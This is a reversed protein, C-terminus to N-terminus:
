DCEGAGLMKSSLVYCRTPNGGINPIREKRTLRGDGGPVLWGQRKLAAEAAKVDFGKCVEKKFSEPLVLFERNGFTDSRIFGVRSVVRQDPNADFREFRSSGHAEFFAAVSELITRDERNGAGGFGDLWAKFCKAAAQDAEGKEWGTLGCCTTAIEGAVAVLGFRRAVRRVQGAATDPVNETVFDDIRQHLEKPLGSRLAVVAQLFVMGVAGHSATAARKLAEAFAAPTPQHHIDEFSGMGAGADAEIDALRIEQGANAQKGAKALLGSLSEEGASLFMLRWRAAQRAVGSRSSRTKGQGNALLYAAEGAERPDVQSLEDLILLGDNHIAALGELGNATARWLRPYSNPSGWVSAAVALGTSKGTSSGGRFHFGGSDEGAIEMLPGAFAVSLAFVLRSNGAAMAAVTARWEEATGAVSFAPEQPSTSQFVTQEGNSGFTESPTVYVGDHWGMRDVCRARATAPATALFATLLDRAPRSPSVRLGRRALERRVEAGDGQLLEVPMAWQHQRGDADRWSLMRGWDNGKTDRTMALVDIRSCIWVPPKEEGDNDTGVFSVGKGDIVFRGSGYPVSSPPADAVTAPTIIGQVAALGAIQHLDNFDTAGDPRDDGFDPMVVLGGVAEAAAKAATLGPNGIKKFDDDACVIIKKDQHMGRIAETVPKLNGTDFAVAVPLGTAEHISAGTAYGEAVCVAGESVEGILHFGGRKQGELLFKKGGDADIFQLTMLDSSVNRVSVVLRDRSQRLGYPQVGKKTLYPHSTCAESADWIKAAKAAAVAHRQATEAQQKCKMDDLRQRQAQNPPAAGDPKWVQWGQGDRWNQFGGVPYDDAHLLYSADGKGNRGEADCRHFEGDAIIGDPPVIGWARMADKFDQIIDM